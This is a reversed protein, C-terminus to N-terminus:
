KVPKVVTVKVVLDGYVNTVNRVILRKFDSLLLVMDMSVVFKRGDELVM